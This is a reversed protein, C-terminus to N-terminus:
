VEKVTANRTKLFADESIGMVSAVQRETEDLADTKVPPNKGALKRGGKLDIVAPASAAWAEFEGLDKSALQTAWDEMAPTLKGAERARELAAEAKDGSVEKQLSAFQTQLDTFQSLPVYKAPDASPVKLRACVQTVADDGSVGAAKAISAMQTETGVLAEIRATLKDPEKASLGLLGAIEEIPDMHEDKSAIQRIEPLAPNNVLGAGEILVVSGNSRLTKFVPSIFRYSKDEIARRGESTWEVSAMVRDGDVHMATIWGAARSNATGQASLSRHDFDIPLVGGAAMEFSASIVAEAQDPVLHLGAANRIDAPAFRLAGLHMIEIQDPVGGPLPALACIHRTTKTM